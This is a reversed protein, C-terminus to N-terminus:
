KEQDYTLKCQIQYVGTSSEGQQFLYAWGLAEIKTATKGTELTPFDLLLTQSELWDAFAEYFEQTQIRELEAATSEMSQLAFPFERTTNGVIDEEVIREGALPVITYETPVSGLYNVWVPADEKLESYAAIYEQVASLISM